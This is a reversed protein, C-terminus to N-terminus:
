RAASVGAAPIVAQELLVADIESLLGDLGEGTLASTFVARVDTGYPRTELGGPGRSEGLMHEAVIYERQDGRITTNRITPVRSLM